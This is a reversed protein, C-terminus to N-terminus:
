KKRLSRLSVRPSYVFTQMAVVAFAQRRTSVSWTKSAIFRTIIIRTVILGDESGAVDRQQDCIVGRDEEAEEDEDEAYM